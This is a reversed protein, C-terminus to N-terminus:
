RLIAADPHLHQVRGCVGPRPCYVALPLRHPGAYGQSRPIRAGSARYKEPMGFTVLGDMRKNTPILRGDVLAGGFRDAHALPEGCHYCSWEGVFPSRPDDSPTWTARRCEDHDTM